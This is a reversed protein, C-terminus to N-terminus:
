FFFDQARFIQNKSYFDLFYQLIISNSRQVSRHMTYKSEFDVFIVILSYSSCFLNIFLLMLFLLWDIVLNRDNIRM